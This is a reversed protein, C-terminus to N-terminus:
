VIVRAADPNPYGIDSLFASQASGITGNYPTQYWHQAGGRWGCTKPLARCPECSRQPIRANILYSITLAITIIKKM